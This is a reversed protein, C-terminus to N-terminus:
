NLCSRGLTCLQAQSNSLNEEATSEIDSFEFNSLNSNPESESFTTKAPLTHEAPPSREPCIVPGMALMGIILRRPPDDSSIEGENDSDEDFCKFKLVDYEGDNGNIRLFRM